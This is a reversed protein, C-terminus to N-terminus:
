QLSPLPKFRPFAPLCDLGMGRSVGHGAYYRIRGEDNMHRMHRVKRLHKRRATEQAVALSSRSPAAKVLM